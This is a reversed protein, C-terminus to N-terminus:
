DRGNENEKADKERYYEIRAAPVSTLHFVGAETSCEYVRPRQDSDWSGYGQWKAAAQRAERRTTFQQKGCSCTTTSPIRGKRWALVRQKRRRAVGGYQRGM